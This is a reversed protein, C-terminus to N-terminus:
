QANILDSVLAATYIIAICNRFINFNILTLEM